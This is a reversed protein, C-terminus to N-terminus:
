FHAVFGSYIFPSGSTQWHSVTAGSTENISRIGVGGKGILGGVAECPVLWRLANKKEPNNIKEPNDLM